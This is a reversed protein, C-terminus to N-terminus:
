SSRFHLHFPSTHTEPTTHIKFHKQTQRTKIPQYTTSSPGIPIFYASRSHPGNIKDVGESRHGPRSQRDQVPGQRAERLWDWRHDRNRNVATLQDSRANSLLSFVKDKDDDGSGSAKKGWNIKKWTKFEVDNGYKAVDEAGGNYKNKVEEIRAKLQKSTALGLRTWRDLFRQLTSSTEFPYVGNDRHFRTISMLVAIDTINVDQEEEKKKLNSTATDEIDDDEEEETEKAPQKDNQPRKTPPSHHDGTQHHHLQSPNKRKKTPKDEPNNSGSSYHTPSPKKIQDAM